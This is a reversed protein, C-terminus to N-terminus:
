PCEAFTANALHKQFYVRCVDAVRCVYDKDLAKSFVSLLYRCNSLHLKQRTNCQAFLAKASHKQFPVRCLNIKWKKKKEKKEKLKKEKKIEKKTYKNKM